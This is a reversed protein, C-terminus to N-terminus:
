PECRRQIDMPMRIFYRASWVSEILDFMLTTSLSAAFEYARLKRALYLDKAGAEFRDSEFKDGQNVEIRAAAGPM